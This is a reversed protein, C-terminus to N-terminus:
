GGHGTVMLELLERQAKCANLTVNSALVIAGDDPSLAMDFRSNYAPSFFSSEPLPPRIGALADKLEAVGKAVEPGAVESSHVVASTLVPVRRGTLRSAAPSMYYRRAQQAFSEVAEIAELRPRMTFRRDAQRDKRNEAVQHFAAFVTAVAVLGTLLTQFDRVWQGADPVFDRATAGMLFAIATLAIVGATPYRGM